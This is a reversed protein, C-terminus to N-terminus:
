QRVANFSNINFSDTEAVFRVTHNGATLPIWGTWVDKWTQWGGTQPVNISGSVNVGDVEIHFRKGSYPSAVRAGFTYNGGTTVNVDYALWEGATVYAIIYGGGSDSTNQIDVDDSRYQGGSNGSTSDMYGTNRGGAKYDEAQFKGPLTHGPM